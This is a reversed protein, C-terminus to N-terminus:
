SRNRDRWGSTIPYRRDRGFARPTVRVGPASQRRKYENILVLRVVKRVTDGDFGDEILQQVPHDLEVYRAIIEDLIEYPPLSDEDKQGPALEATPPRDIVGQPIVYKVTNRYRSLEYVLLKACDKLPAFGGCMDGYITAYGVAMESKNGTTLLMAGTENSLAMLINGRCRSQLNEHTLGKPEPMVAKMSALLAEYGPEISISDCAVGLLEAQEAALDLSLQSTHRSPLMYAHVNEPGFADAAVCLTLASDIGGSLGLLVKKFGNKHVYDRTGRVIASYIAETEGPQDANDWSAEGFQRSTADFKVWHLADEFPVAPGSITGDAAVAFSRGDFVLEDQGGVLNGYVLPLGTEEARAKLADERQQWKVRHYPSANPILLIDAGDKAAIRAPYDEWIDECILVGVAVGKVEVTLPKDGASFYRKEDFVAYNPLAQKCYTGRVEGDKIWSAANYLVGDLQAPHGVLAEIGHTTKTIEDIAAAAHRLFGQRYLLDEPPYGTLALEPFMVIDAGLEGRARAITAKILEANPAIAGVVTDVQAVAIVLETM